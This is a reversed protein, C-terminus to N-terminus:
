VVNPPNTIFFINKLFNIKNLITNTNANMDAQPTFGATLSSVALPAVTLKQVTSFGFRVFRAVLKSCVFKALSHIFAVPVVM